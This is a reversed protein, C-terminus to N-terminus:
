AEMQEVQILCGTVFCHRVEKDIELTTEV